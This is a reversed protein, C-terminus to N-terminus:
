LDECYFDPHRPDKFTVQTTFVQSLKKASFVFHGGLVTVHRDRTTNVKLGGGREAKALGKTIGFYKNCGAGWIEAGIKRRRAKSVFWAQLSAPDEVDPTEFRVFFTGPTDGVVQSLDITGGGRPLHFKVPSQKLVGRNKEELIVDIPMFLVGGGEQALEPGGEGEGGEEGGGGHGGKSEKAEGGAAGKSQVEDWLKAPIRVEKPVDDVEITAIEEDHHSSCAVAGGLGLLAVVAFREALKM